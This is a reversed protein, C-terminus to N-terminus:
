ASLNPQTKDTSGINSGTLPGNTFSSLNREVFEFHEIMAQKASEPDEAKIANFIEEHVKLNQEAFNGMLQEAITMSRTILNTFFHFLHIYIPNGTMEALIQHFKMDAKSYREFQKENKFGASAKMTELCERLSNLSEESAGHAAKNVAWLEFVKRLEIIDTLGVVQSEVIDEIPERLTQPIATCVYNGSKSRREIYGRAELRNIADRLTTRSIGLLEALEREAPLRSGPTLHGDFILGIIHRLAEDSRREQSEVSATMEKNSM